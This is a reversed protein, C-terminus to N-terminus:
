SGYAQQMLLRYALLYSLIHIYIPIWVIFSDNRIYQLLSVSKRVATVVYWVQLVVIIEKNQYM